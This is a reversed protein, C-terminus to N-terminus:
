FVRYGIGVDVSSRSFDPFVLRPNAYISVRDYWARAHAGIVTGGPLSPGVIADMQFGFKRDFNFKDLANPHMIPMDAIEDRINEIVAILSDDPPYDTSDETYAIDQSITDGSELVITRITERYITRMPRSKYFALLSDLDALATDRYETTTISTHVKKSNCYGLAFCLAGIVALKPLEKSLNWSAFINTLWKMLFDLDM